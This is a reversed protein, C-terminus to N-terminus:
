HKNNTGRTAQRAWGNTYCVIRMLVAKTQQLSIYRNLYWYGEGKELDDEVEEDFDEFSAWTTNPISHETANGVILPHHEHEHWQQLHRNVLLQFKNNLFERRDRSDCYVRKAYEGYHEDLIQKHVSHMIQAVDTVTVSTINHHLCEACVGNMELCHCMCM